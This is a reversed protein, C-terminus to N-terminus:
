EERVILFIEEDSKKMFYKERAFKELQENDSVLENLDSKAAGIERLYYEKDSELKNLEKSLKYQTYFDNQDFFALWIAFLM